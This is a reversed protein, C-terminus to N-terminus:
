QHADSRSSFWRRMVGDAQAIILQLLIGGLDALRFSLHVLTQLRTRFSAVLTAMVPREALSFSHASIDTDGLLLVVSTVGMPYM